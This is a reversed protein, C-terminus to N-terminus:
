RSRQELLEQGVFGATTRCDRCRICTCMCRPRAHVAWGAAQAVATPCVLWVVLTSFGVALWCREIWRVHVCQGQM